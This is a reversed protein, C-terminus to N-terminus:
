TRSSREDVALPQEALMERLGWYAKVFTTGRGPVVGTARAMEAETKEIGVARVLTAASAAGCTYLTTQRTVGDDDVYERSTVTAGSLTWGTSLMGLLVLFAAMAVAPLKFLRREADVEATVRDGVRIEGETVVGEHVIAEGVRRTDNVQFRAKGAQLFGTDGVQGGSEAYFPTADLM